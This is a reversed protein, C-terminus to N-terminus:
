EQRLAQIPNMNAARLAPFFGFGIGIMASVVTALIISGATVTAVSGEARFVSQLVFTGAFSMLYGVGVGIAGGLMCLTIAEILFQQMIDIRRAGVAKRLGIEKTRQTVSVLMINMIGIGGVLLSIGAIITLFANLGIISAQAQQAQQEPNNISFSNNEGTLRQRDRLLTTVQEIATAVQSKDVAQVTLQSVDVRRDVQNRFLRQRATTYPTYVTETPRNFIAQSSQTTLVGVVDFAVGNMTVRQGLAAQNSSFLAQAVEEGIVAVRAASREEDESYYRGAGLSNDSITFHNPTIGKIPYFYRDGGASVVVNGNYEIVVGKVAPAAGPQALLEADGANLQANLGADSAASSLTPTIYFVGVGLEAFQKEFYQSLGNGIALIGVVAAVGIIIGVMTLLARVKNLMLSTFAIRFSELINM